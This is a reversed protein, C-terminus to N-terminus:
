NLGMSQLALSQPGGPDETWPTTSALINSHCSYMGEELPGEWVWPDFRLRKLSKCQLHIRVASGSPFDM